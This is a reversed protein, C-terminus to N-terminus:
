AMLIPLQRDSMSGEEHPTGWPETKPGQSNVRYVVGSYTSNDLTVVQIMVKIYIACVDINRQGCLISTAGYVLKSITDM